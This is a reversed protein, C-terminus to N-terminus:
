EMWGDMSWGMVGEGQKAEKVRGDMGDIRGSEVELTAVASFISLLCQVQVACM